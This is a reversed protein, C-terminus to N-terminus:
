RTVKMLKKIRDKSGWVSECHNLIEQPTFWFRKIEGRSHMKAQDNYYLSKPDESQGYPLLSWIEKPHGEMVVLLHGWGDDCHIQGNDQEM